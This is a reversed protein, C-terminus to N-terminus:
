VRSDSQQRDSADVLVILFSSGGPAVSAVIQLPGSNTRSQVECRDASGVTRLRNILALFVPRSEPALFRDLRHGPLEDPAVVFLNAGAANAELIDGEPGVRLYAVPAFQYLEQYDALAENLDRQTTEMQEHQLDLEVQHVQLEHLLKLADHASAPNSALEHLLTLATVGTPWGKSPPASGEKLRAEAEVRLKSQKSEVTVNLRWNKSSRCAKAADTAM